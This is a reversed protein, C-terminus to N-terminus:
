KKVLRLKKADGYVKEELAGLKLTLGCYLIALIINSIALVLISLVNITTM